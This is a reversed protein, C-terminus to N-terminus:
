AAHCSWKGAPWPRSVLEASDSPLARTRKPGGQLTTYSPFAPQCGWLTAIILLDHTKRDFKWHSTRHESNADQPPPPPPPPPELPVVPVLLVLLGVLVLLGLLGLLVSVVLEVFLLSTAVPLRLGASPMHTPEVLLLRVTM